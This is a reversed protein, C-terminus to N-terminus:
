EAAEAQYKGEPKKDRHSFALSDTELRALLGTRAHSGVRYGDIWITGVKLEDLTREELRALTEPVALVGRSFSELRATAYELFSWFLPDGYPLRFWEEYWDHDIIRDAPVGKALNALRIARTWGLQKEGADPLFPGRRGKRRISWFIPQGAWVQRLQFATVIDDASAGDLALESLVRFTNHHPYEDFLEEFKKAFSRRARLTPLDLLSALWRARRRAIQEVSPPEVVLRFPSESARAEYLPLAAHEFWDSVASAIEAPSAQLPDWYDFACTGSAADISTSQRPPQSTECFDSPEFHPPLSTKAPLSFKIRPEWFDASEVTRQDVSLFDETRWPQVM